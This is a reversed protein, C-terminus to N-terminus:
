NGTRSAIDGSAPSPQPVSRFRRIHQWLPGHLGRRRLVKFLREDYNHALGPIVWHPYRAAREAMMATIQERFALRQEALEPALAELEDTWIMFIAASPDLAICFDLTQSVDDLSEGTTGLIFTHCDLIGASKCHEHIAAIRDVHFGKKLRDLVANVGSDSGVEVGSCGADRMLEALERDFGIPNAYATWPTRFGRAIMERCVAKAHAPPLNFVSDVVFFHNISPRADLARFLEDVVAVPDRQRISRGEIVPYTCYDCRLPCGRKTQVSETGCETYYRDDVLERQPPRLADLDAFGHSPVSKLEGDRFYHLNGIEDLGDNGRALADVLARFGAEGEGSIGFDPELYCMIERPMVSFGGGGVIIRAKTSARLRVILERYYELNNRIGSYDGSQVNRLSVAVLDPRFADLKQAVYAFPEDEFCLDWLETTHGDPVAAIVYLLGIPTVPDPLRERNASVFAIRM